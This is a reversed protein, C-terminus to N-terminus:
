GIERDVLGGADGAGVQVAVVAAADVVPEAVAAERAADDEVAEARTLVDGLAREAPV